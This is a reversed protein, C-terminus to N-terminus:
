KRDVEEEDGDQFGSVRQKDYELRRAEWGEEWEALDDPDLLQEMILRMLVDVNSFVRAGHYGKERSVV